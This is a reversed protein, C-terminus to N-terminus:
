FTTKHRKYFFSFNCDLQISSPEADFLRWGSTIYDRFPFWIASKMSILMAIRMVHFDVLYLDIARSM